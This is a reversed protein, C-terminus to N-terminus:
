IFILLNKEHDDKKVEQRKLIERIIEARRAKNHKGEEPIKDLQKRLEDVTM